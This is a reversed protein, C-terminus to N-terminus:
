YALIFANWYREIQKYYFILVCNKIKNKLLVKFTYLVIEKILIDDQNKDLHFEFNLTKLANKKKWVVIAYLIYIIYHYLILINFIIM